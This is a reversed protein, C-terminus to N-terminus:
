GDRVIGCGDGVSRSGALVPGSGDWVTGRGDGVSYFLWTLIRWIGINVVTTCFWLVHSYSNDPGRTTQNAGGNDVDSNRAAKKKLTSLWVWGYQDVDVGVRKQDVLVDMGYQAV